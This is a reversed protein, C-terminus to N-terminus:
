SKYQLDFFTFSSVNPFVYRLLFMYRSQYLQLSFLSQLSFPSFPQRHCWFLVILVLLRHIYSILKSHLTTVTLGNRYEWDKKHLGLYYHDRDTVIASGFKVSKKYRRPIQSGFIHHFIFILSSLFFISQFGYWGLSGILCMIVLACFITIILKDLKKELTSRKSPANMANM